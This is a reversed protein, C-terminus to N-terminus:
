WYNNGPPNQTPIRFFGQAFEVLEDGLEEVAADIRKKLLERDM